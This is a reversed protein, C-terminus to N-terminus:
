HTSRKATLQATHWIRYIVALIGVGIWHINCALHLFWMIVGLQYQECFRICRGLIVVAKSQKATM